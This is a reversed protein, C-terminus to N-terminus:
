CKALRTASQDATHCTSQLLIGQHVTTVGKPPFIPCRVRVWSYPSDEVSTGLAKVPTGHRIRIHSSDLQGDSHKTVDTMRGDFCGGEDQFGNGSELLLVALKTGEFGKQVTLSDSSFIKIKYGKFFIVSSDLKIALFDLRREKLYWVLVILFRM